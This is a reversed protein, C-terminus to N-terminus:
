STPLSLFLFKQVKLVSSLQPHANRAFTNSCIFHRKTAKIQVSFLQSNISRSDHTTIYSIHM